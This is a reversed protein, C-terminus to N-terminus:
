EYFCDSFMMVPRITDFSVADLQSIQWLVPCRAKTRGWAFSDFASNWADTHQQSAAHDENLMVRMSQSMEGVGVGAARVGALYCFVLASIFLIVKGAQILKARM